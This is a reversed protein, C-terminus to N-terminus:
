KCYALEPPICIAVLESQELAYVSHQIGATITMCETPSLNIITDCLAGTDLDQQTVKVELKGKVCVLHEASNGHTHFPYISNAEFSGLVIVLDGCEYLRTVKIQDGGFNFGEPLPKIPLPVIKLPSSFIEAVMKYARDLALDTIINEAGMM